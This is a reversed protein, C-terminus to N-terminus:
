NQDIEMPPAELTTSANQMRPDPRLQGSRQPPGLRRGDASRIGYAIVEKGNHDGFVFVEQGVQLEGRRPMRTEPTITVLVEKGKETELIISTESVSIIEGAVVGDPRDAEVDRYMPALGPVGREDVFRGVREHMTTQQILSATAIVVLVVGVMSYVLPRKYSFSFHTVLLYLSILFVGVLLILFWPSSVIFIMFGHWGYLPAFLVGTRHLTFLVFSLLYIAIIAVIVAGVLFLITKLVFHWKPVMSVEGAKIKELLKEKIDNM